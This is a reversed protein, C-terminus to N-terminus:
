ALQSSKDVVFQMGHLVIESTAYTLNRMQADSLTFGIQFTDGILSTNMRHWIQAQTAATLMQLNINAPTLGLNTSEPCTYLLQSYELSSNVANLPSNWPTSADQSLYINVTVQGIATADLLYKQSSLRVQRGENWYPNFQKTQMLPESLRTFTGLGLYTGSPIPSGVIVDFIFTNVTPTSTVKRIIGNFGTLGLAGSFYLYDGASVCHDVSTIVLTSTNISQIDGSVGEGTGEGIVLVYGQPNGAITAPFLATATGSGWPATWEDWTAYPLNGWSYGTTKRFTGHATYNEYLFAWTNDRYNYLFSQTPFRWPSTGIPYSFYIWENLFDRLANVRKIGNDLERIDFVADPIDLDIRQASQQDTLTIGYPGLDISGRDLPIASFTSDSPLESNINYFLFPQFDNGTYVFRTKRGRAGGFGVILVDENPSVTTIPQSVGASLYGGLGTQDVYYSRPDATELPIGASTTPVNAYYPTGNWSWIVTDQLQTPNADTSAQVYPNFFLQRDKFNQILQAGVLYYKKSPIGNISVTAATLPPSFNVWGLNPTTPLGTGGTPDGDYWKIGDQGAISATLYQAIGGAGTAAAQFNAANSGKTGDFNIVITDNPSGPTVSVVYGTQENINQNATTGSGTAITGTVENFWILDNPILGSPTAITISVQTASVRTISVSTVNALPNFHFGANGNTAWLASSFNVTWFLQYDAGSWSFPTNTYKYYTVNYFFPPSVSQGIQYAKQTDFALLLPYLSNGGNIIFDRLGMVPLAPVYDFTGILPGVGGISLTLAGTSYNITGTGPTMGSGVLIGNPIAPETWTQGGATFEISEPVISFSRGVITAIGGSVYPTFGTSNVNLTISTPTVATITYINGNLEVMGMVGSIRVSQGVQYVINAVTVVASAAQTINTINPAFLNVAGSILALQGAQWNKPPTGNLVSQVQIELRALLFTGRKRIVRGRWVIFNFLYPFSDNDIVFAERANIQGKPFNGIYIQEPM